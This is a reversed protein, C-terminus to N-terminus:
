LLGLLRKDLNRARNGDLSLLIHQDKHWRMQQLLSLFLKQNLLLISFFFRLFADMTIRTGGVITPATVRSRGKTHLVGVVFRRHQHSQIPTEIRVTSEVMRISVILLQGADHAFRHGLVVSNRHLSFGDIEDQLTTGDVRVALSGNEGGLLAEQMWGAVGGELGVVNCLADLGARRGGFHHPNGPSQVSVVVGVSVHVIQRAKDPGSVDEEAIGVVLRVIGDIILEASLGLGRQFLFM